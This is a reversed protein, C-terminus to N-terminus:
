PYLFTTTYDNVELTYTAGSTFDSGLNLNNEFFTYVAPCVTDKPHQTTVEINITNGQRTVVADHFTTCGDRLGGKIYVGVQVPFSEMFLVEVEHIPALSIDVGNDPAPCASAILALIVLALISIYRFYKKINM